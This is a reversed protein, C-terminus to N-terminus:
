ADDQALTVMHDVHVQLADVTRFGPDHGEFALGLDTGALLVADAGRDILKQGEAFFLDRQEASCTGTKATELYATHVATLNDPVLAVTKTLQGYLRSAMVQRTGLIGITTISNSAFHADLPAIASVLSLPTIAETEAFCFHGGLSTITGFDAGAAKLRTLLQAYIEAQGQRNDAEANAILRTIDANVITLELPKGLTRYAAVLREYYVVTASPGIGGILGIHM